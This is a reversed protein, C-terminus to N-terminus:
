AYHSYGKYRICRKKRMCISATSATNQQPPGEFFKVAVQGFQAYTLVDEEQEYWESMEARRIWSRSSSIRRVSTIQPEDGIIKKVFEPDIKVPPRATNQRAGFGQIGKTVM